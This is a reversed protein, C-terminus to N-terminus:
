AVPQIVESQRNLKKVSKSFVTDLDNIDHPESGNGNVINDYAVNLFNGDRRLIDCLDVVADWGYMCNLEHLTCYLGSVEPPISDLIAKADASKSTTTFEM